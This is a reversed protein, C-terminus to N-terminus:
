LRYLRAHLDSRDCCNDAASQGQRRIMQFGAAGLYFVRNGINVVSYKAYLAEQTSIRYFQFIAASGAAYTMSRISQEQFILGYADGGSVVLCSGGDPFDQFDSLGVGATWTEPADLDSWQARRPVSVLGTLVVFFGIIAVSAAAPPTGGLDVFNTASTLIFKQPVTNAQCAIVLDNFQAFVWNDSAVLPQYSVSGKSVLTWTFNTNNLLYLDTATGAFIAISGDSKRGFFYGRCPSPLSATFALMDAVPGYGDARPVVNFITQSDATGLPTVDPAYDPFPQTKPM